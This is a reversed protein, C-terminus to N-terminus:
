LRGASWSRSTRRARGSRGASQRRGPRGVVDEVEVAAEARQAQQEGGPRRKTSATSTCGSAMAAAPSFARSLATALTPKWTPSTRLTSLSGGDGPRASTTTTSGGRAPMLACPAPAPRQERRAASRRRRRCGSSAPRCRRGREGLEAVAERAHFGDVHERVRVMDLGHGEELAPRVPLGRWADGAQARRAPRNLGSARAPDPAAGCLATLSWLLDANVGVFAVGLLPLAPVAGVRLGIVVSVVVSVAMGAATAATRLCFRRAACLYLCFFIVDSVGLATYAQAPDRGPWAFALTFYGVAGPAHALLAKTPGAAVSVIDAVAALAAIGVVLAAGTM